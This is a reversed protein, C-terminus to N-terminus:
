NSTLTPHEAYLVTEAWTPTCHRLYLKYNPDLSRIFQPLTILDDGKHYACIALKPKFKQITESAGILVNLEYGEVDMKMFSVKTFHQQAVFSDITIVKVVAGNMSETLVSAGSNGSLKMLKDTDGVAMNVPIVNQINNVKLNNRLMRFAMPEPEFAYVTGESGVISSFWLSAEGVYAGVDLVIDGPEPVVKDNYRYQEILFTTEVAVGGLIEYKDVKYKRNATTRLRKTREVWDERSIPPIFLEYAREGIFAYATRYKVYWDFTKKSEEDALVNYTEDFAEPQKKALQYFQFSSLKAFENEPAQKFMEWEKTRLVHMGFKNLWRNIGTRKVSTTFEVAPIYKERYQEELYKELKDLAEEILEKTHSM